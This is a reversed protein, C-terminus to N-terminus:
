CCGNKEKEVKQNAIELRKGKRKSTAGENDSTNVKNLVTEILSTFAEELQYGTKASTYFHKCKEKQCYADITSKQTDMSNRDILDVKNGAIVFTIDKGVAEQLTTVWSKVKEFTEFIAADYVLLAGVANQYYLTSIANFQEQGATDWFKLHVKKGKHNVNTEYFAPNVTSKEGQNFKNKFYKSLISTKGVRGEGLIVFKLINDDSM